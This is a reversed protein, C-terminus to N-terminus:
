AEQLAGDTFTEDSQVAITVPGSQLLSIQPTAEWMSWVVTQAAASLAVHRQVERDVLWRIWGGLTQGNDAAITRAYELITPEFRVPFHSTLLKAHGGRRRPPGAPLRNEPNEYFASAEDDDYTM